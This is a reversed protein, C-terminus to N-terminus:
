FSRERGGISPVGGQQSNTSFTGPFRWAQAGVTNQRLTASRAGAIAVRFRKLHYAALDRSFYTKSPQGYMKGLLGDLIGLHYQPLLWDPGIPLQDRGTPLAVTKAVIAYFYLPSQAVNPLNSLILTGLQPMLAPQPVQSSDVCSVLRKIRGEDPVIAYTTTDTVVTFRVAELWCNSDSCFEDMVDYLEGKIGADSAGVLKVRAQNLLQDYDQKAVPM